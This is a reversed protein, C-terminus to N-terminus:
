APNAVGEIAAPSGTDHVVGEEHDVLSMTDCDRECKCCVYFSAGENICYSYVKDKCCCSIVMRLGQIHPLPFQVWPM